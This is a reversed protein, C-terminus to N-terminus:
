SRAKHLRYVLRNTAGTAELVQEAILGKLERQLTRRTVGPCLTEFEQITLSEHDLLYGVALRQRESLRHQQALADRRIIREGRQQVERMQQALGGTFYELWGTLDLDSERVSQLARYYAPRDRDYFESITFLKKFDYGTRYLCLTSLLRATRGNGDLFPHVHVLQFQAIGAVLVPHVAKEAGLWGVLDAMMLPVEFAAPPTYIKEGTKSNVVYNQIKRYEGPAASNGRVGRVPRKHIERILGETIPEQSGLYEAVLDFAKTYNLLERADEPRADPVAEGALLREAQDLTLQTGEIHTTHHAELVLARAQMQGIWEASLQAAELFGRVREIRTLDATIANTIKFRPAFTM